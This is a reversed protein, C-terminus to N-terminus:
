TATPMWRGWAAAARNDAYTGAGIVPCDGVRGPPKNTMGGTSTAAALNAGDMFAADLQHTEESTFVEGRGANFLPCDELMEVAVTVDDGHVAIVPRAATASKM